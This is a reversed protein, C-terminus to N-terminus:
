IHFYGPKQRQDETLDGIWKELTDKQRNPLVEIVCRRQLDSLILAYNKHGKRVSIEDVGLVRVDNHRGQNTSKKAWKKFIDLVTSESLEEEFAVQKRCTKQIRKYIHFEYARTQRRKPDIWELNETFPRGCVECDFRRGQFHILSRMGLIDLHRVCRDKHDYGGGMAEGCRPCIAVDQQHECFLHLYKQTGQSEIAYEKVRMGPLALLETLTSTTVAELKLSDVRKVARAADKVPKDPLVMLLKIGM